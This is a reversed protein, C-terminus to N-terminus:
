LINPSMLRPVFLLIFYENSCYTNRCLVSQQVCHKVMEQENEGERNNIKM